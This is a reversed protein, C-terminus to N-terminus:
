GKQKEKRKQLYTLKKPHEPSNLTAKVMVRPTKNETNHSRHLRPAVTLLQVQVGSTPSGLGPSQVM